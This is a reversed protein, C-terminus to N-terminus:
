IYKFLFVVHKGWCTIKEGHLHVVLHRERKLLSPHISKFYLLQCCSDLKHHILFFFHNFLNLFHPILELCDFFGHILCYCASNFFFHRSEYFFHFFIILLGVAEFFISFASKFPTISKIARLSGKPGVDPRLVIRLFLRRLVELGKERSKIISRVLLELVILLLFIGNLHVSTYYEFISVKVHLTSDKEVAKKVTM